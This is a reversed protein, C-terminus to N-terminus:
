QLRERWTHEFRGHLMVPFPLGHSVMLSCGKEGGLTVAPPPLFLAGDTLALSDSYREQSEAPVWNFHANEVTALPLLTALRAWTPVPVALPGGPPAPDVNVARTVSGCLVLSNAGKLWHRETQSGLGESRSFLSPNQLISLHFHKLTWSVQPKVEHANLSQELQRLFDVAQFIQSIANAPGLKGHIWWLITLWM